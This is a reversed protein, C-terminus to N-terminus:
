GEGKDKFIVHLEPPCGGQKKVGRTEELLQQNVEKLRSIEQGAATMLLSHSRGDAYFTM